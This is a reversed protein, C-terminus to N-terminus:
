EMTLNQALHSGTVLEINSRTYAKFGTVKVEISYTGAPLDLATYRGQGDTTLVKSLRTAQNTVKVQAQPLAAGSEDTLVGSIEGTGFQAMALSSLLSLLLPLAAVQVLRMFM